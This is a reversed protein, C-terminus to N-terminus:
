GGWLGPMPIGLLRVFLVWFMAAGGVAIVALRPSAREGFYLAMSAIVLALTLFYGALPVIALYGVGIGFVGFARRLMVGPPREDTARANDAARLLLPRLITKGALVLALGALVVSYLVPLGAPGVEDALASRGINSALFYYGAAIILLVASCTLDRAM